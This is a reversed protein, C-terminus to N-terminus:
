GKMDGFVRDLQSLGTILDYLSSYENTQEGTILHWYLVGNQSFVEVQAASDGNSAIGFGARELARRTWLAAIGEGIVRISRSSHGHVRFAGTTADFHVGESRFAAEFQGNLVLDEPAGAQLAGGLPLLWICDATRLALDLDHTSLLIARGSDHALTRLMQMMEARRPLDLFATPEDLIMLAPEQALARAILMKQREGDSLESVKRSAFEIGGVAELAQQIVAEDQATLKGLWDTYPFRGLAVLAYASLNDVEIRETLVVGVRKAREHADLRHVDEGIVLVHGNLPTQMGALTRLLTSKGAGNPGILCVLEGPALTVDLHAAVAQSTRRPLRYGITLDRTELISM